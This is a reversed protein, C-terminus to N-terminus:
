RIDYSCSSDKGKWNYQLNLHNGDKSGIMTFPDAKPEELTVSINDDKISYTGFWVQTYNGETEDIVIGKVNPINDFFRVRTFCEDSSSSLEWIGGVELNESKSFFLIVSVIVILSSLVIIISRKLKWEGGDM